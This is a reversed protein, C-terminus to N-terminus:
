IHAWAALAPEASVVPVNLSSLRSAAVALVVWTAGEDLGTAFPHSCVNKPLRSVKAPGSHAVADFLAEFTVSDLLAGVHSTKRNRCVSQISVNTAGKLSSTPNTGTQPQVVEDTTSRVTTWSTTGPTEDPYANLANLLNSGAAQQWVAPPCGGHPSCSNITYSSNIITSGHQTGAAAVVDGVKARLSPWWTLAFRPLLGGQSIGLIAIKKGSQAYEYRIANVLYQASIQIDATMKDPFNVYCLPHGYLDWAGKTITYVEDGTAGTGTVLMVPTLNTGKLSPGVCHVAADLTAQPVTLAPDAAAASSPFALVALVSIARALNRM